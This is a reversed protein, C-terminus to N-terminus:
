LTYPSRCLYQHTTCIRRQNTNGFPPVLSQTDFQPLIVVRGGVSLPSMLSAIIGYPNYLSLAHLLTSNEDLNWMKNILELERNLDKHKLLFRQPQDKGPIPLYLMMVPADKEYLNEDFILPSASDIDINAKLALDKDQCILPKDTKKAVEEVKNMLEPSSIVLSSESDKIGM